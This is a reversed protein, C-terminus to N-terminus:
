IYIDALEKVLLLTKDLSKSQGNYVGQILTADEKTRLAM